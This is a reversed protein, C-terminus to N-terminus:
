GKDCKLCVWMDKDKGYKVKQRTCMGCTTVPAVAM